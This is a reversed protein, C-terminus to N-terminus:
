KGRAGRVRKIIMPLLVFLALLLLVALVKSSMGDSPRTAYDLQQGALTYLFTGPIIGIATTWIYTRLSIKTLGACVNILFFPFIPILRLVLMYTYGHTRIERNFKKLKDAYREQVFSGILYRSALFAGTAGTTAGVNVYLVTPLLGFLMAGAMTLVPAAMPISTITVVCYLLIFLVVSLFYNNNVVQKLYTKHYQLNEFTFFNALPSFRITVVVGIVALLLVLKKYKM